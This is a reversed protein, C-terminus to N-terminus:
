LIVPPGTPYPPPAALRRATQLSAPHHISAARIIRREAPQPLDEPPAALQTGAAFACPSHDATQSDGQGEDGEIYEGTALDLTRTVMGQETCLEIQIRGSTDSTVMYGAPVALRMTVALAVLVLALVRLPTLSLGALWMGGKNRVEAPPDFGKAQSSVGCPVACPM